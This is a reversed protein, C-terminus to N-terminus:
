RHDKAISDAPACYPPGSVTQGDTPLAARVQGSAVTGPGGAPTPRASKGSGGPGTVAVFEGPRVTLDARRLAHARAPGRGHGRSVGRLRLVAKEAATAQTATVGRSGRRPRRGSSGPAACSGDQSASGSARGRRSVVGQDSNQWLRGASGSQICVPYTYGTHIQTEFPLRDGTLAMAQSTARRVASRGRDRAHVAAGGPRCGARRAGGPRLRHRGPRGGRSGVSAVGIVAM